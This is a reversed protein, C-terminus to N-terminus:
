YFYLKRRGIPPQYFFRPGGATKSPIKSSGGLVEGVLKVKEDIDRLQEDTVRGLLITSIQSPTLVRSLVRGVNADTQKLEANKETLQDSCNKQIKGITELNRDLQKELDKNEVSVKEIQKELDKNAVSLKEFRKELNKNDARLAALEQKLQQKLKQEVFAVRDNGISTQYRQDRQFGYFLASAQAASRAEAEAVRNSAARSIRLIRRACTERPRRRSMRKVVWM